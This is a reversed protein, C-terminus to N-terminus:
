AIIGQHNNVKIGNIIIKPFRLINPKSGINNSSLKNKTSSQHKNKKENNFQLQKVNQSDM